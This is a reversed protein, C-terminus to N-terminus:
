RTFIWGSFHDHTNDFSSVAADAEHVNTWLTKWSDPLHLAVTTTRSVVGSQKQVLISYGDHNDFGLQHRARDLFSPNTSSSFLVQPIRYSIHVVQTEGPATQVWGGYVTKGFENWIDLGTLADKAQGSMVLSLDDDAVLPVDSQEFLTSAPPEFGDASLLVSGQPAYVRMYDVNNKGSFLASAMGRHTKTITLADVVTGTEGITVSQDVTQDIVADTKGGGINTNVVMLYDGDTQKMEGTFGLSQMAKQTDNDRFYVQIDKEALGQEVVTMLRLLTQFDATKVKELLVPALDGLFAKPKHVAPDSDVEVIKQTTFLFNESDITVGYAPMDVPGIVDLVKELFTANVAMVGDTTSGGAHEYFWQMKKASTPFDPFWNGDQFEWRPDILSIPQPSAVFQDLQGQVDYTGGGPLAINEIAGNDVDVQAFSGVFGGTPRLETNNQFLALYRMTSQDGLLFTLTHVFKLFEQMSAVMAPTESQLKAVKEIYQAPVVTSDVKALAADATLAHPLANEVYASLVHLKTVVDTSSQEAMAGGAQSLTSATLSLEQGATVLERVTEYTRDTQPIVNVLVVVGAHLDNLSNQADSFKAAASSFDTQAAGFDKASLAATARSVDDLAAVGIGQIKGAQNVTGSITQMAHLPLVVIFSLAVFSALARFSAHHLVKWEFRLFSNHLQQLQLSQAIAESPCDALVGQALHAFGQSQNECSGQDECPMEGECGKGLRLSQGIQGLRVRRNGEGDGIELPVLAELEMPEELFAALADDLSVRSIPTEVRKVAIMAEPVVADFERLQDNVDSFDVGLVDPSSAELRGVVEDDDGEIVLSQALEEIEQAVTKVSSAILEENRALKVIYPSVPVLGDLDHYVRVIKKEHSAGVDLFREPVADDFQPFSSSVNNNM